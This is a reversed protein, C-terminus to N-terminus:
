RADATQITNNIKDDGPGGYGPDPKVAVAYPDRSYVHVYDVQMTAPVRLAGGIESMAYNLILYMPSDTVGETIKGIERGDYYYTVSGPERLAGYVHWGTFNGAACGGPSGDPSHFHFCADGGLAEAIDNEGDIPWNQGNMWFAPWNAIKNTAGSIPMYIRAEFYGYTFRAQDNSQVMGSRYAYRKGNVVVPNKVLSLHLRGNAVKANAPDYAAKENNPQVPPTICTPCGLWNATWRDARLSTGSFEEDFVLKWTADIPTPFNASSPGASMGTMTMATALGFAVRKGSLSQRSTGAKPKKHRRTFGRTDHSIASAM